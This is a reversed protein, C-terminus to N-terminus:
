AMVLSFSYLVLISCSRRRWSILARLDCWRTDVAAMGEIKWGGANVFSAAAIGDTSFKMRLMLLAFITM